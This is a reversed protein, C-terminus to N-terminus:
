AMRERECLEDLLVPAHDDIYDLLTRIRSRLAGLEFSVRDQERWCCNADFCEDATSKASASYADLLDDIKMDRNM